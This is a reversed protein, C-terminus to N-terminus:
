AAVPSSAAPTRAGAAEPNASRVMTEVDRLIFGFRRYFQVLVTKPTGFSDSPELIIRSGIEDAHDCLRRMVESGIGQRRMHKPLHITEVRMPHTIDPVEVFIGPYEEMLARAIVHPSM